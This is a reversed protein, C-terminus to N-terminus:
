ARVWGGMWELVWRGVHRGVVRMRDRGGVCWVDRGPMWRGVGRGDAV